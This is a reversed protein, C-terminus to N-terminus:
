QEETELEIGGATIKFGLDILETPLTLTIYWEFRVPQGECCWVKKERNYSATRFSMYSPILNGDDSKIAETDDVDINLSDIVFITHNKSPPNIFASKWIATAM